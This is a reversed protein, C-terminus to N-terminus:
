VVTVFLANRDISIYMLLGPRLCPISLAWVEAGALLLIAQITPILTALTLPSMRAWSFSMAKSQFCLCERDVNGDTAALMLTLTDANLLAPDDLGTRFINHFSHLALEGGVSFAPEAAQRAQERDSLLRQLRLSSVSLTQFSDLQDASLSTLTAFTTRTHTSKSKGAPREVSDKSCVHSDSCTEQRMRQKNKLAQNVAYSRARR